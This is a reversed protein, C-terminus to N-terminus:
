VDDAGESEWNLRSAHIASPLARALYITHAEALEAKVDYRAALEYHASRAQSSASAQALKMSASKRSLWYAQDM